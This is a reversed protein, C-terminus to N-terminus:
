KTEKGAQQQREQQARKLSDLDINEMPVRVGYMTQIRPQPEAEASKLEPTDLSRASREDPRATNLTDTEAVPVPRRVGYMLRIDPRMEVTDSQPEPQSKANNKVGSCAASFGLLSLIFFKFRRTMAMKCKYM